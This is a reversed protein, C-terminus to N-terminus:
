LVSPLKVVFARVLQLNETEQDSKKIKLNLENRIDWVLNFQAEIM